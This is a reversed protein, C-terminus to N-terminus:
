FNFRYLSSTPYMSVGYLSQGNFCLANVSQKLHYRQLHNGEWDMKLLENCEHSPAADGMFKVGSYLAYIYDGIAYLARFAQRSDEDHRIAPLGKTRAAVLKPMSYIDRRYEALGDRTINCISLVSAEMMACAAKDKGPCIAVASNLHIVDNEFNSFDETNDFAVYGIAGIEKGKKDIEAYWNGDMFGTAIKIGRDYGIYVPSAYGSQGIDTVQVVTDLQVGCHGAIDELAISALVRSNGDYIYMSDGRVQFSSPNLMEGHGRGKHIITTATERTTDLSSVIDRGDNRSVLILDDSVFIGDPMMIGYDELSLSDSAQLEIIEDGFSALFPDTANRGCSVLLVAEAIFIAIIRLHRAM